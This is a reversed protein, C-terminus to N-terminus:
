VFGRQELSWEEYTGGHHCMNVLGRFWLTLPLRDDSNTQPRSAQLLWEAAARLEEKAHWCLRTYKNMLSDRSDEDGVLDRAHEKTLIVLRDELWISSRQNLHPQIVPSFSFIRVASWFCLNYWLPGILLQREIYWLIHDEAKRVLGGRIGLDNAAFIVRLYYDIPDLEQGLVLPRLEEERIDISCGHIYLLM